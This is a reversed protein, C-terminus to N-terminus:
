FKARFEVGYTRPPGTDWRPRGPDEAGGSIQDGLNPHADALNKVFVAYEYTGRRLATRLNILEYSPRVRPELESNAISYSHDSYSYDVRYVIGTNAAVTQEYQANFNGTWPAVEPLTEGPTLFTALGGSVIQADTYGFGANLTLGEVVNASVELEGGRSRAAATNLIASFGCQSLNISEQINKWNIWFVAGTLSIRRDLARMKAGLEYSWVSDPQYASLESPTLGVAQYNAACFSPPPPVEGSGPRYGKAADAYIDMDADPQYKILFKPTFANDSAHSDTPTAEAFTPAGDALGWQYGSGTATDHSYRGGVTASWQSTIAYTLEGYIAREDNLSPNWSYYAESTGFVAQYAPINQSELFTSNQQNYYLGGVFQLPGSWGSAFRLEETTSHYVGSVGSYFPVLPAVFTAPRGNPFTRAIM